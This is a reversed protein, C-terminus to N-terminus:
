HLWVEVRRNRARGVENDNAAVPLASGFSAVTPPTVGRNALLMAVVDARQKSLTQNTADNGQMDTFGALVVHRGRNMPSGVFRVLRELDKLAKNDLQASGTKFRFNISLRTAGTVLEHYAPPHDPVQAAEARLSLPVFCSRRPSAPRRHTAPPRRM